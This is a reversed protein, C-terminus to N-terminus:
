KLQGVHIALFERVVAAVGARQQVVDHALGAGHDPARDLEPRPESLVAVPVAPHHLQCPRQPLASRGRDGQRRQAAGAHEAPLRPTRGGADWLEARRNIRRLAALQLEATM